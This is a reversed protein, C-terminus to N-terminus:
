ENIMKFFLESNKFSKLGSSSSVFSESKSLKVIGEFKHCDENTM